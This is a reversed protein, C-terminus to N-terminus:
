RRMAGSRAPEAPLSRRGTMSRAATRAPLQGMECGRRRARARREVQDMPEANCTIRGDIDAKQYDIPACGAMLRSSAVEAIFRKSM